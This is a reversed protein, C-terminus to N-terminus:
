LPLLHALRVRSLMRVMKNRNNILVIVDISAAAGCDRWTEALDVGGPWTSSLSRLSLVSKFSM